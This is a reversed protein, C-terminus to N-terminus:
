NTIFHLGKPGCKTKDKRCVDAFEYDMTGTVLNQSGFRACKGMTFTSYIEDYPNKYKHEIYNVCNICISNKPIYFPHIFTSLLRKM